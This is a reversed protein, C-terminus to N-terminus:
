GVPAIPIEAPIEAPVQTGAAPEREVTLQGGLAEVRDALEHLGGGTEAAAGGVGDDAVEVVM